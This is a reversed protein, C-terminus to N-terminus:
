PVVAVPITAIQILASPVSGLLLSALKSDNSKALYIIKANKESAVENITKAVSGYRVEITVTHGAQTLEQQIPDLLHHQAREIEATRRNHREALEDPTLFSYPSWELVHVLHLHAHALQAREAAFLAARRSADRGDYAVIYIDPM